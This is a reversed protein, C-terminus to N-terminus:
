LNESTLPGVIDYQHVVPLTQNIACPLHPSFELLVAAKRMEM